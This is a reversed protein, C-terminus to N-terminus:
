NINVGIIGGIAGASIVTILKTIFQNSIDFVDYNLSTFVIYMFIVVGAFVGWILGNEKYWRSILFGDFTAAVALVATTVPALIEYSFNIRSIIIAAICFLFIVTIICLLSIILFRIITKIIDTKDFIIKQLLFVGGVPVCYM